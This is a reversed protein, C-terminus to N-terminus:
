RGRKGGGPKVKSQSGGSEDPPPKEHPRVKSVVVESVYDALGVTAVALAELLLSEARTAVTGSATVVGETCSLEVETANIDYSCALAHVLDDLILEDPRQYSRPWRGAMRPPREVVPVRAPAVDDPPLRFNIVLAHGSTDASEHWASAGTPAQQISEM